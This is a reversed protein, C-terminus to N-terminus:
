AEALAAQMHPHLLTNSAILHVQPAIVFPQGAMDTVRGGAEQVLLAGAAIDWSNLKFEWYGDYRGAAVYALDLAASGMRRLGVIRKLFVATQRLNDVDSTHKDYPYGTALVSELLTEAGSVRLPQRGLENGNDLYAGQGAVASFCEDRMPDYIVGLLPRKGEYLALSVCFHPLDHAFNVTGDLPDVHWIYASEGDHFGTEEGWIQHDPFRSLIREQILAEAAGDYQTVLDIASSKMTIQKHQQFGERLLAGTERAVATAFPLIASPDIQPTTMSFPELHSSRAEM